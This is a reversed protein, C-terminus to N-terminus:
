RRGGADLRSQSPPEAPRRGAHRRGRGSRGTPPPVAAARDDDHSRGATTASARLLSRLVVLGILTVGVGMLTPLLNPGLPSTTVIDFWAHFVALILLSGRGLRSLWAFIWSAVWISAAFGLFGIAPMARYSPTIGFLPLHWAAWVIAVFNAALVTPYRRELRPQLFGRWGIEEGFGFFMLIALWYVGVPLVGFEESRGFSSWDLDTLSEGSALASVAAASLLLLPPVGVAFAWARRRGRWAAVRRAVDVLGARGDLVAIVLIGAAAPGLSGLLHLAPQPPGGTWGQTQALLPLWASWTVAATLTVYATVPRRGIWGRM